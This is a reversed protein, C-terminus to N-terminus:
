SPPQVGAQLAMWPKLPPPLAGEEDRPQLGRLEFGEQLNVRGEGRVWSGGNLSVSLYSSDWPWAATNPDQMPPHQQEREEGCVEM